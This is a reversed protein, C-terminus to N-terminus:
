KIKQKEKLLNLIYLNIEGLFKFLDFWPDNPNCQFVKFNHMKFM